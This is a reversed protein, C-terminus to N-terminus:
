DTLLISQGNHWWFFYGALFCYFIGSFFVALFIGGEQFFKGGPSFFIKIQRIYENSIILSTLISTLLVSRKSQLRSKDPLLVELM